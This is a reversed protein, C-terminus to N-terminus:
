GDDDPARRGAFPLRPSLIVRPLLGAPLVPHDGAEALGRDVVATRVAGADVVLAAIERGDLRLVPIRELYRALLTDDSDIDVQRVRLEIELEAGVAAVTALAEECLHCGPRTLLELEIPDPSM